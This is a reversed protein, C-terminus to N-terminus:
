SAIRDSSLARGVHAVSQSFEKCRELLALLAVSQAPPFPRTSHTVRLADLRQDLADSAATLPRLDASGEGRQVWDALQDITSHLAGDLQRLESATQLRLTRDIEHDLAEQVAGLRQAVVEASEILKIGAAARLGPDDAEVRAESLLPLSANLATRIATRRQAVMRRTDSDNAAQQILAHFASGCDRLTGALTRRLERGAHVPWVFRVVLVGVLSGLFVAVARTFAPNLSVDQKADPVLTLCFAIAAQLGAYAVRESGSYVYACLFMVVFVLISFSWLTEIHPIVLIISPIALGFGGVLAGALRLLAKRNSSGLSGQTVVYASLVASSGFPWQLVIWGLLAILVSLTAKIGYRLRRVDLPPLWPQTQLASAAVTPAPVGSEGEQNVLTVTASLTRLAQSLERLALVISDFRAVDAVSYANFGDTRRLEDYHAELAAYADDLRPGPDPCSEQQRIAREVDDFAAAIQAVLPALERRFEHQPQTASLEESTAKLTSVCGFARELILILRMCHERHVHYMRSETGAQELLSLHSTFSRSLDRELRQLNAGVARGGLLADTVAGFLQACTRVTAALRRPLEETARIPWVVITVFLAIAIGLAVEASRQVAISVGLTPDLFGSMAVIIATIGLMAFAYPAVSGAGFYATSTIVVSLLLLFPVPQQVLQLLMVGLVAGVLTGILRLVGKSVSAGVNPQTLVVITVLAWYGHPLRYILALVLALVCALASQAARRVRLPDLGLPLAIASTM